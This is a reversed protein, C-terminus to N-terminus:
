GNVSEHCEKGGKDTIKLVGGIEGYLIQSNDLIQKACDHCFDAYAGAIKDLTINIHCNFNDDLKFKGIYNELKSEIRAPTKLERGCVDCFRTEGPKMNGGKLIRLGDM